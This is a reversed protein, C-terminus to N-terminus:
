DRASEKCGTSTLVPVSKHCKFAAQGADRAIVPVEASRQTHLTVGHPVKRCPGEKAHLSDAIFITLEAINNTQNKINIVVAQNQHCKLSARGLEAEIYHSKYAVTRPM